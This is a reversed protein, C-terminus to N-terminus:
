DDYRDIYTKKDLRDLGTALLRFAMMILMLGMFVFAPERAILATIGLTMYAIGLKQSRSQREVGKSRASFSYLQYCIIILPITALIEIYTRM